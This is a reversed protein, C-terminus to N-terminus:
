APLKYIYSCGDETWIIVKDAAIFEGGTWSQENESPVSCLLSFDGADFVRWYKSCVVLLSLQTFTCFSISQCSQCYIPKSEEEFVPDLDQMRSVDATIIWVKLIGTVSVAVVTDEQTRHSRIISMSSIWDPSIKSVLSYLVELSTADVVLIEPYHGHCLLRGERQTGITFQYFQSSCFLLYPFSSPILTFYVLTSFNLM